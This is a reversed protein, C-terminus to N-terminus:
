RLFLFFFTSPGALRIFPQTDCCLHFILIERLDTSLICSESDAAHTATSPAASRLAALVLSVIGTGAGVCLTLQIGWSKKFYFSFLSLYSPAGLEIIHCEKSGFLREKLESVLTPQQVSPISSEVAPM